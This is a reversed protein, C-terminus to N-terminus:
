KGNYKPNRKIILVNEKGNDFWCACYKPEPAPKNSITISAFSKWKKYITRPQQNNNQM